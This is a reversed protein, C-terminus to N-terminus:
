IKLPIKNNLIRYQEIIEGKDNTILLSFIQIQLFLVYVLM